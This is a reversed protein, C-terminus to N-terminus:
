GRGYQDIAHAPATIHQPQGIGSFTVTVAAFQVERRPPAVPRPVVRIIVPPNGHGKKLKARLKAAMAQNPVIFILPGHPSHRVYETGPPYVMTTAAATLSLRHVVNHGDVWVQLTTVHAGPQLDTLTSLGRLHSFNTARLHKLRIGDIVQYGLFEFRHGAAGNRRCPAMSGAALAM